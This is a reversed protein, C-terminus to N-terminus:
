RRARNPWGFAASRYAARRRLDRPGAYAYILAHRYDRLLRRTDDPTPTWPPCCLRKGYGPCGFQCKLRVWDAAVIGSAPILKAETAGTALALDVYTRLAPRRSRKRPKAMTSLLIPQGPITDVKRDTSLRGIM